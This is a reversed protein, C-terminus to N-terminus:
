PMQLSQYGPPEEFLDGDVEIGRQFEVLQRVESRGVFSLLLGRSYEQGPAFADLPMKCDDVDNALGIVRRHREALAASMERLAQMAGAMEGAVAILTFCPEGNVVYTYEVPIKGAVRPAEELTESEVRFDVERDSPTETAPGIRMVSRSEPDVSLILREVRDYLTYGPVAGDGIEDMRLMEGSVMVRALYGQSDDRPEVRYVLIDTTTTEAAAPAAFMM